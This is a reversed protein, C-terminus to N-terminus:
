LKFSVCLYASEKHKSRLYFSDCSLTVQVSVVTWRKWKKIDLSYQIQSCFASVWYTPYLSFLILTRSSRNNVIDIFCQAKIPSSNLVNKLYSILLKFIKWNPHFKFNNFYICPLICFLFTFWINWGENMVSIKDFTKLLRWRPNTPKLVTKM